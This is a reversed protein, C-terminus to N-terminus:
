ACRWAQAAVTSSNKTRVEQVGDVKAFGDIKWRLAVFSCAVLKLTRDMQEYLCRRLCMSEQRLMVESGSGAEQQKWLFGKAKTSCYSGSVV